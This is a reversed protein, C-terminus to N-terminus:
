RGARIDSLITELSAKLKAGNEQNKAWGDSVEGLETRWQELAAGDPETVVHKSSAVTEKHIRDAETDFVEGFARSFTEGSVSLIAKQASEPLADFREKSMAVMIPVAGMPVLLHYKTVDLIRFDNLGIWEALSGDIVGRSISEAAQTVPLGVPTAGIKELIANDVQGASRIKLGSVDSLSTMPKATHLSYPATTFLGLPQLDEYGRLLGKEYLRWYSVSGEVSSAVHFPLNLVENDPYKGQSYAPIMWAIDAVGNTLLDLQVAPSKGLAGGPYLKIKIEGNSAEEVREAWPVLVDKYSISQPPLFISFSLEIPDAAKAFQTQGLLVCLCLAMLGQCKKWMTEEENGNTKADVMQIPDNKPYSSLSVVTECITMLYHM